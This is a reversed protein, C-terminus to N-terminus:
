RGGGGGLYWAGVSLKSMVRKGGSGAEEDPGAQGDTAGANEPVQQCQHPPATGGGM